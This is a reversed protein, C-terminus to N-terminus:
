WLKLREGEQKNDFMGGRIYAVDRYNIFAQDFSKATTLRKKRCDVETSPEAKGEDAYFLEGRWYSFDGGHCEM